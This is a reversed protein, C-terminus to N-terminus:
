CTEAQCCSQAFLIAQGHQTLRLQWPGLSLSQSQPNHLCLGAPLPFSLRTVITEMWEDETARQSSNSVRWPSSIGLLEMPDCAFPGVAFARPFRTSHSFGVPGVFGGQSVKHLPRQSAFKRPSGRPPSLQSCDM